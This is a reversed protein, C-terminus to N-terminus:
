LQNGEASVQALFAAHQAPTTDVAAILALRTLSVTL